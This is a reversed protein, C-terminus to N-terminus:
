AQARPRAQATIFGPHVSVSADLGRAAAAAYFMRRFSTTSVQYDTGEALRRRQGDLWEAWPYRPRRGPRFGETGRIIEAM